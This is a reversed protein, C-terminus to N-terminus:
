TARATRRCCRRSRRGGCAHMEEPREGVSYGGSRTAPCTSRARGGGPAARRLSSTSGARSSASSRARGRTARRRAARALWRTTRALARRSTAAPRAQVAPVRRLGHHHRRRADGPDAISREPTLLLPEGDLHSQFSSARRPSRAPEPRPQLGPLRGLRHPHRRDWAMFRHLGGLAGVLEHGPRLM